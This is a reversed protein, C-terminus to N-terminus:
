LLDNAKCILDYANRVRLKVSDELEESSHYMACDLMIRIEQIKEKSKLIAQEQLRTM